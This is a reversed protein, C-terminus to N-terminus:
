APKKFEVRVINNFLRFGTASKAFEVARHDMAFRASNIQSRFAREGPTLGQIVCAAAFAAFGLAGGIAAGEFSGTLTGGGTSAALTSALLGGERMTTGYTARRSSLVVADRNRDTFEKMRQAAYAFGYNIALSPTMVQGTWAGGKSGHMEAPVGAMKATFVNDRHNYETIIKSSPLSKQRNINVTLSDIAPEPVGVEELGTALRETDVVLLDIRELLAPDTEVHVHEGIEIQIPM